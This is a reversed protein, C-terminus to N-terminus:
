IMWSKEKKKKKLKKLIKWVKKKLKKELIAKYGLESVADSLDKGGVEPTYEVVAQESAYNVSCSVVGPVRKLRREILRACSACHMGIVPFSVKRVTEKKTKQSAKDM